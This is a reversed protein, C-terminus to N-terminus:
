YFAGVDLPSDGIEGRTARRRPEPIRRRIVDNMLATRIRRLLQDGQRELM